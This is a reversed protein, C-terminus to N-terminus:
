SNHRSRSIARLLIGYSRFFGTECRNHGILLRQMERAAFVAGRWAYGDRTKSGLLVKPIDASIYNFYGDMFADDADIWTFAVWGCDSQAVTESIQEDAKTHFQEFHIWNGPNVLQEFTKNNTKIYLNFNALSPCPYKYSCQRRISKILVNRTYWLFDNRWKDSWKLDDIKTYLVLCVRNTSSKEITGMVQHNQMHSRHEQSLTSFMITASLTFTILARM